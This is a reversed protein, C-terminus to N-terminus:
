SRILRPIGNSYFTVYGNAVAAVEFDMGQFKFAAPQGSASCGHGNLKCAIKMRMQHTPATTTANLKFGSQTIVTLPDSDIQATVEYADASPM